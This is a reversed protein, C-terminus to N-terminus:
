PRPAVPRSRMRITVSKRLRYGRQYTYALYPACDGRPSCIPYGYLGPRRYTFDYPGYDHWYDCHPYCDEASAPSSGFFLLGFLVAAFLGVM